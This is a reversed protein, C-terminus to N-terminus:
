ASFIAGDPASRTSCSRELVAEALARDTVIETVLGSKAVAAAARAKRAGGGVLVIRATERLQKETIAICRDTFDHAVVSGDDAILLAGVEAVVGQDELISRIPTPITERLQSDPPAWSGLALVAADLHDMLALVNAVDSQARLSAATRADDVVMPTFITRASGGSNQAVMRVMEVPSDALEAGVTGTLQVVAIRPLTPLAAAMARITRGWSVGLADGDKLTTQLHEAAALGIQRRVADPSGHSEVVTAHRLGLQQALRASLDPIVAGGDDLEITVVGLERALELLRAVKFRNLGLEKAIEVKSADELFFRRAVAVLLSRDVTEGLPASM